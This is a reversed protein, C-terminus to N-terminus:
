DEFRFSAVMAEFAPTHEGLEPQLGSLQLTYRVDGRFAAVLRNFRMDGVSWRVEWAPFGDLLLDERAGDFREGGAEVSAQFLRRFEEFPIPDLGDATVSVSLRWPNGNPIPKLWLGNWAGADAPHSNLEVTLDIAPDVGSRAEAPWTRFTQWGSPYEVSYGYTENTVRTLPASATM